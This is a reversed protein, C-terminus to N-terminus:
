IGLQGRVKVVRQVETAVDAGTVTHVQSVGDVLHRAKLFLLKYDESDILKRLQAVDGEITMFGALDATNGNTCLYVRHDAIAGSAKLGGFYELAGMFVELSKAERGPFPNGWKLFIAANAM